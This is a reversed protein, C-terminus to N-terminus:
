LISKVYRLDFCTLTHIGGRLEYRQANLIYLGISIKTAIYIDGLPDFASSSEGALAGQKCMLTSALQRPVQPYAKWSSQGNGILAAPAACRERGFKHCLVMGSFRKELTKTM